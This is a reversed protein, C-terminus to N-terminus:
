AFLRESLRELYLIDFKASLLPSCWEAATQSVVLSSTIAMNHALKSRSFVCSCDPRTQPSSDSLQPVKEGEQLQRPEATAGHLQAGEVDSAQAVQQSGVTGAAARQGFGSQHGPVAEVSAKEM